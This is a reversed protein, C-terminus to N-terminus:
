QKREIKIRNVKRYEIDVAECYSQVRDNVESPIQAKSNAMVQLATECQGPKASQFCAAYEVSYTRGQVPSGYLRGSMTRKSPTGACELDRVVTSFPGIDMDPWTQHSTRAPPSVHKRLPELFDAIKPRDEPVASWCQQLLAALDPFPTFVDNDQVNPVEFATIRRIIAGVNTSEHFPPDGTM